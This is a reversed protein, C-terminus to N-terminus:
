RTIAISKPFWRCQNSDWHWRIIKKEKQIHKISVFV